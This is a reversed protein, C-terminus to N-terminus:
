RARVSSLRGRRNPIICAVILLAAPTLQMLLRPYASHVHELLPWKSFGFAVTYCALTLVAAAAIARERARGAIAVAAVAGPFGIWLWGWISTNSAEDWCLRLIQPLFALARRLYIGNVPGYTSDVATLSSLYVWGFCLPELCCRRGRLISPRSRGASKRIIWAGLAVIISAGFLIIGETKVTLLGAMLWPIPSRLTPEHPDRTLWVAM